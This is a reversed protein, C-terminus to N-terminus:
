LKNLSIDHVEVKKQRGQQKPCHSLPQCKKSPQTQSCHAYLMFIFTLYKFLFLLPRQYSTSPCFISPYYSIPVICECCMLCNHSYSTIYVLIFFYKLFIKGTFIFFCLSLGCKQLFALLLLTMLQMLRLTKLCTDHHGEARCKQSLCM